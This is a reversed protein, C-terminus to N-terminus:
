HTTTQCLYIHSAIPIYYMKTYIRLEIDLDMLLITKIKLITHISESIQLENVHENIEAHKCVFTLRLRSKFNLVPPSPMEKPTPSASLNVGSNVETAKRALAHARTTIEQDEDTPPKLSAKVGM